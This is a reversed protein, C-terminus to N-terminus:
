AQMCKCITHEKILITIGLLVVTVCFLYMYSWMDKQPPPILYTECLNNRAFIQDKDVSTVGFLIIGVLLRRQM